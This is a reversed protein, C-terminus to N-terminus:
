STNDKLRSIRCIDAIVSFRSVVAINRSKWSVLSDGLLICYGTTSRRIMPCSAWDSDCYAKLKVALDKALLIGQGEISKQILWHLVLMQKEAKDLKSEANVKEGKGAYDLPVKLAAVALLSWDLKRKGGRVDVKLKTKFIWHSGIAKKGQPLTTLEWTGNEKLARLELDMALCWGPDRIAEKFNAPDKQTQFSVAKASALFTTTFFLDHNSDRIGDRALRDVESSRWKQMLNSPHLPGDCLRSSKKSSTPTALNIISIEGLSRGQSQLYPGCEGKVFELANDFRVVKVSKNFQTNVFKLFAKFNEATAVKYPGWIDIHILDFVETSHSDNLKSDSVHRLRHHWLAYADNCTKNASNLGGIASLSFKHVSAKVLSSFVQDVKETPVNLLHYLGSKLKGLGTVKKTVLDHVMCFDPYFSVVCQNDQTLKPVSLLSFKFSPVVLVDKLLIDNNLRVKGVHSIVSTNGNPLKIQPKIKLMYPDLIDTAFDHVFEVDDDAAANKIQFSRLLQEFQQPTFSVNRSEVHAVTRVQGHGKNQGERPKFQKSVKHKPHWNFLLMTEVSSSDLLVRQSERRQEEREHKVIFMISRAISKNVSGILWYIVMNNCTDWLEAQNADTASRAITGRVFGLKRKTSLGIEIALNLGDSPHLCLPNQFVARETM